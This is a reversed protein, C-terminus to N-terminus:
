HTTRRPPIIGMRCWENLANAFVDLDGGKAEKMVFGLNGRDDVAAGDMKV